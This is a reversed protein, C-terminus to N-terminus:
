NLAIQNRVTVTLLSVIFSGSLCAFVCILRGIKSVPAVEGFGVTTMTCIICWM